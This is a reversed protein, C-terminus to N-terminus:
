ESKLQDLLENGKAIFEAWIEDMEPDYAGNEIKKLFRLFNGIIPAKFLRIVGGEESYVNIESIIASDVKERIGLGKLLLSGDEQYQLYSIDEAALSEEKGSEILKIKFECM